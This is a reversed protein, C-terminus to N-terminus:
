VKKKKIPIYVEIALPEPCTYYCDGCGICGDGTYKAYNYGLNNLENCLEIVNKKCGIICRECGKCEDKHIIIYPKPIELSTEEQSKSENM